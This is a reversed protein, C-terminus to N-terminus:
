LDPRCLTQYICHECKKLNTELSSHNMQFSQMADITEEFERLSEGTPLPVTYRKNDELSRLVLEEVPFGMEQLAFYQAYLQFFYGQHLFSIKSKREILMKKEKDYIDIKGILGYKESYVELAQLFKVDSSYTGTDITTHNLRGRTQASTHYTTDSFNEYLSHFYLSRPCFLFDNIKSIQILTEM